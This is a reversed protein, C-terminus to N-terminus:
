TTEEDKVIEVQKPTLYIYEGVNNMAFHVSNMALSDFNLLQYYRGFSVDNAKSLFIYYHGSRENKSVEDNVFIFPAEKLQRLKTKM